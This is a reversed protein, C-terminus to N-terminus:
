TTLHKNVFHATTPILGTAIGLLNFLNKFFQDAAGESSCISKYLVELAFFFEDLTVFSFSRIINQCINKKRICPVLNLWKSYYAILVYKLKYFMKIFFTWSINRGQEFTAVWFYCEELFVCIELFSKQQHLYKLNSFTPFNLSM